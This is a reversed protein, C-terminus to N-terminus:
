RLCKTYHRRGMQLTAGDAVLNEAIYKGIKQEAVSIPADKHGPLPQDIKCAYDIHSIHIIGDGFTRPMQANVQAAFHRILWFVGRKESM